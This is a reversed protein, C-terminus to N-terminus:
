SGLKIRVGTVRELHFGILSVLCILVKRVQVCDPKPMAAKVNATPRIPSWVADTATSNTTRVALLGPRGNAGGTLIQSSFPFVFSCTKDDQIFINIHIYAFFFFIIKYM